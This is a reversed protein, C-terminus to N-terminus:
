HSLLLPVSAYNLLQRTMGGLAFERLRSHGYAGMVVLDAGYRNAHAMFFEATDAEPQPLTNAEASVGHRALHRAVKQVSSEGTDPEGGGGITLVEVRSAEQLFPMADSIARTAERSGNWAVIIRDAVLTRVGARPIVLVPRGSSLAVAGPIGGTGLLDAEEAPQGAVILDAYRGHLGLWRVPDGDEMCLECRIGTNRTVEDFRASVESRRAERERELTEILVGSPPADFLLGDVVHRGVFLGTLAADHARALGIGLKLHEEDPTGGDLYLLLDKLAM